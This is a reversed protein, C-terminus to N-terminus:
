GKRGLARRSWVRLLRPGFTRLRSSVAIIQGAFRYEAGGIRGNLYVFPKFQRGCNFPTLEGCAATGTRLAHPFAPLSMDVFQRILENLPASSAAYKMGVQVMTARLIM